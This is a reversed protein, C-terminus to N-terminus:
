DSATAGAHAGAAIEARAVAAAYADYDKAIKDRTYDWTDVTAAGAGRLNRRLANEAARSDAVAADFRRRADAGLRDASDQLRDLARRSADVRTDLIEVARNSDSPRRGSGGPGDRGFRALGVSRGQDARRRYGRERRPWDREARAAQRRGPRARPAAPERPSRGTSRRRERPASPHGGSPAPRPRARPRGLSGTTAFSPVSPHAGRGRRDFRGGRPGGDRRRRHLGGAGSRVKTDTEHTIRENFESEAVSYRGPAWFNGPFNEEAPFLLRDAAATHGASCPREMSKGGHWGDEFDGAKAHSRPLM